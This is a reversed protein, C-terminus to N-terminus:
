PMMEHDAFSFYDEGIIVHDIVKIGILEGVESLRNTIEKDQKSPNTCGSPHCHILIVAAARLEISPAFIERPHVLSRNLTGMTILKEHIVRHKNDLILVHFEEQRSHQLRKFHEFVQRANSIPEGLIKKEGYRVAIEKVLMARDSPISELIDQITDGRMEQYSISLLEQLLEKNSLNQM